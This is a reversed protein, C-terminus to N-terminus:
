SPAAASCIAELVGQVGQVQRALELGLGFGQEPLSPLHLFGVKPGSQSSQHALLYFLQNCLFSGADDSLRAPLGCETLCGLVTEWCLTGLIEPPGGEVVPQHHLQSGANDPCRFDLLNRARREVRFHDSGRSEGLSLVISPSLTTLSEELRQALGCSVVPVVQTELRWGVPATLHDLVLASPNLGSGDFPEFGTAFVTPRLNEAM